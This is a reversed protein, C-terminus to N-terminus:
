YRLEWSYLFSLEIVLYLVWVIACKFLICHKQRFGKSKLGFCLWLQHFGDRAPVRCWKGAGTAPPCLSMTDPSVRFQKGPLHGPLVPLLTSGSIKKQDEARM